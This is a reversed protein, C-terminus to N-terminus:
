IFVFKNLFRSQGPPTWGVSSLLCRLLFDVVFNKWYCIPWFLGLFLSHTKSVGFIKKWHLKIIRRCMKLSWHMSFKTNRRWKSRQICHLHWVTCQPGNYCSPFEIRNHTHRGLGDTHPPCHSNCKHIILSCHQRSFHLSICLFAFFHTLFDSFHLSIRSFNLSICLFASFQM